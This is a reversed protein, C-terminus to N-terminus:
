PRRALRSLLAHMGKYTYDVGWERRVWAIADAVTPFAGAQARAALEELQEATLRSPRGAGHGLVRHVVADAGAARYLALWRQVTRTSVGVVAAVRSVSAGERLLVLACLRQRRLRHREANRRQRLQEASEPWDPIKARHGMEDERRVRSDAHSSRLPM